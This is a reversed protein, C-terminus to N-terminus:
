VCYKWFCPEGRKRPKDALNVAIEKELELDDRLAELEELDALKDVLELGPPDNKEIPVLSKHLLMSLLKSQIEVDDKPNLVRNGANFLNRGQVDIVGQLLLVGLLGLIFNVVRVQQWSLTPFAM